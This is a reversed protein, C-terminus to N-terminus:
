AVMAAKTISHIRSVAKGHEIAMGVLWEVRTRLVPKDDVEGLDTVEMVGNQLMKIKGEGLSVVYISGTNLAGDVGVENFDMIRQGEANDGTIIIPLDNYFSVRRGFDDKSWELDGGIDAKAARSLLNRMRGDMILHTPGQVRDIAEDLTALSLPGSDTPNDEDAALLQYGTVRRRLGDFSVGDSADGNIFADTITQGFAKVKMAEQTSRTGPGHMKILAKDVDLDGGAIKLSETMPNIVGVSATYGENIGRFGVNPLKAEQQYSYSGGPLDMFPLVANLETSGAFMEIVAQRKLDTDFQKAAEHLTLM